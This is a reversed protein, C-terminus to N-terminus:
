LGLTKIIAPFNKYVKRAETKLVELPVDLTQFKAKGLVKGEHGIALKWAETFAGKEEDTLVLSKWNDTNSGLWLQVKTNIAFRVEMLRYIQVWDDGIKFRANDM